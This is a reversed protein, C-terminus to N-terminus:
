PLDYNYGDELIRKRQENFIPSFISKTHILFNTEVASLDLLSHFLDDAVFPKNLNSTMSNVKDPHLSRYQPSLWLVFPIEVNAKPIKKTFNHGVNEGEDFVNEGHDSLYLATASVNTETSNKQICALLSDVVYDSYLISNEYEALLASKTSSGKFVNFNSPYRKAYTAHSGMLHLVIFKKPFSQKLAATFPAILKSDYSTTQIAEFSSNSSTNVFKREDAKNALVTVMNDWVGIPSQNSIWYTKFGASHFVDLVDVGKGFPIPQELNSTSLISLVSNLTNSYPAVVNTFVALDSRKLLKPTTNHASGYLSMHNRNCSEGLILIVTQNKENFSAKAKVFKPHNSKAAEKLLNLQTYFSLGVKAIQPMGKRILREHMANEAIFLVCFTSLAAISIWKFTSKEYLFKTNLAKVFLLFYPVLLLLGLSAKLTFFDHAEQINTNSVVLLSTLTIPGKLLIWHIIELMGSLFYLLVIFHYYKKNQSILHLLSFCSFWTFQIVFDRGDVLDRDIFVGLLLPSLALLLFYVPFIERLSRLYHKMFIPGDM